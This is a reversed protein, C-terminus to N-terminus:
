ANRGLWFKRFIEKTSVCIYVLKLTIDKFKRKHIDQYDKYVFHMIPMYLIQVARLSSSLLNAFLAESEQHFLIGRGGTYVSINFANNIYSKPWWSDSLAEKYTRTVRQLEFLLNFDKQCYTLVLLQPFFSFLSFTSSSPPIFVM